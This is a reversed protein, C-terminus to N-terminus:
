FTKGNDSELPAESSLQSYEIVREPSIMLNQLEASRRVCWQFFGTLAMASSIALGAESNSLASTLIFTIFM